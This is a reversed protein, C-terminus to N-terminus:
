LMQHQYLSGQHKLSIDIKLFISQNLSDRETKDVALAWSEHSLSKKKVYPRQFTVFASHVAAQVITRRFLTRRWFTNLRICLLLIPSQIVGIGFVTNICKLSVMCLVVLLCASTCMSYIVHWIYPETRTNRLSFVYDSIDTRYYPRFHVIPSYLVLPSANALLLREQRM